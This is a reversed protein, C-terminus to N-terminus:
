ASAFAPTTMLVGSVTVLELLPKQEDGAAPMAPATHDTPKYVLPTTGSGVSKPAGRKVSYSRAETRM